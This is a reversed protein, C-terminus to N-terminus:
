TLSRGRLAAVRVAMPMATMVQYPIRHSSPAFSTMASWKSMESYRVVSIARYAVTM